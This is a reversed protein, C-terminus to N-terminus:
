RLGFTRGLSWGAAFTRYAFHFDNGPIKMLKRIVKNSLYKGADGTIGDRYFSFFAEEMQKRPSQKRQKTTFGCVDLHRPLVAFLEAQIDGSSALREAETKAYRIVTRRQATTLKDMREKVNAAYYARM